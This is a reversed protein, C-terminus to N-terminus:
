RESSWVMHSFGARTYLRIAATNSAVVTLQLENVIRAAHEVVRAV